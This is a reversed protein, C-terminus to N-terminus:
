NKIKKLLQDIDVKKGNILVESLDIIAYDGDIMSGYKINASRREAIKKGSVETTPKLVLKLLESNLALCAVRKGAIRNGKNIKVFQTIETRLITKNETKALEYTIEYKVSVVTYTTLIDEANCLNCFFVSFMVFLFMNFSKM